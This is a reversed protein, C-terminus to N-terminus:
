QDPTAPVAAPEDTAFPQLPVVPDQRATSGERRVPEARRVPVADDPRAAEARRVPIENPSANAPVARAVPVNDAPDAAPAAENRNVPVARAVPITSEEVAETRQVRMLAPSHVPQGTREVYGTYRQDAEDVAAQNLIPLGASIKLSSPPELNLTGTADTSTYSGYLLPVATLNLRGDPM